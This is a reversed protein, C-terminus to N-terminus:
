DGVKDKPRLWVHNLCEAKVASEERVGDPNPSSRVHLWMSLDFLCHLDHVGYRGGPTINVGDVIRVLRWDSVVKWHITRRHVAKPQLEIEKELGGLLCGGFALEFRIVTRDDDVIRFRAGSLIDQSLSHDSLWITQRGANAFEVECQFEGPLSSASVITVNVIPRFPRTRSVKGIRQSSPTTQGSSTVAFPALSAVLALLALVAFARHSVQRTAPDDRPAAEDM